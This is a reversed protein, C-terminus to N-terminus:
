QSSIIIFRISKKRISKPNISEPSRRKKINPDLLVLNVEKTLKPFKDCFPAGVIAALPIIYDVKKIIKSIESVSEFDGNSAIPFPSSNRTSIALTGLLISRTM